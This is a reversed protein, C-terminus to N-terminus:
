RRLFSFDGCTCDEVIEVSEIRQLARPARKVKVHLLKSKSKSPISASERPLNKDQSDEAESIPPLPAILPPTSSAADNLTKLRAIEKSQSECRRQSHKVEDTM